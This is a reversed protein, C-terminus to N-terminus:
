SKQNEGKINIPTNKRGTVQKEVTHENFKQLGPRRELCSQEKQCHGAERRRKWISYEEVRSCWFERAPAALLVKTLQRTQRNELAERNDFVNKAIALVEVMYKGEFGELWQLKWHIDPVAQDVFALYVASQIERAEPTLPIYTHLRQTVEWSFSM